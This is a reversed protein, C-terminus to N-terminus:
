SLFVFKVILISAIIGVLDTLLGVKLAYRIKKIGVAGFYLTLIYITTDTSGQITAALQGIFSDPGYTKTLEATMSLAATGSLPRILALPVIEAPIGFFQLLPRIFHIMADLAGSSRLIAIAVMMGLLFPLVKFAMDIGEKSGEVFLEYMPLKKIMAVVLVVFIFVPIIYVSITTIVSM